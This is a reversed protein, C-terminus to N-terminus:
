NSPRWWKVPFNGTFRHHLSVSYAAAEIIGLALLAPLNKLSSDRLRKFFAQRLLRSPKTHVYGKERAQFRGAWNKKQQHFFFRTTNPIHHYKVAEPVYELPLNNLVSQHEIYADDHVIKPFSDVIDSPILGINTSFRPNVKCISHHIEGYIDLVNSLFSDKTVPIERGSVINNGNFKEYLAELSGERITGDGDLLLLAEGTAHSLIKNQAVIQGKREDEELLMIEDHTEEKDAVIDVTADEGAVVVIIEEIPINEEIVQDLLTGITEQENHACIGVSVSFTQSM